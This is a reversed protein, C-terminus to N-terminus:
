ASVVVGMGNPYGERNEYGYNWSSDRVFLEVVYTREPDLDRFTVSGVGDILEIYYYDLENGLDFLWYLSASCYVGAGSDDTVNVDVTIHGPVHSTTTFQNITPTTTDALETYEERTTINDNTDVAYMKVIYSRPALDQFSFAASYSVAGDPVDDANKLQIQEYTNSDLVEAYVSKIESDDSVTYGVIISGFLPAVIVDSITPPQSPPPPPEPYVHYEPPGFSFYKWQRDTFQEVADRRREITDLHHGRRVTFGRAQLEPISMVGITWDGTYPPLIGLQSSIITDFYILAPDFSFSAVPDFHYCITQTFPFVLSQRL